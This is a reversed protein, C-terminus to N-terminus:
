SRPASHADILTQLQAGTVADTRGGFLLSAGDPRSWWTTTRVVEVEDALVGDPDLHHQLHRGLRRLARPDLGPADGHVLPDAGVAHDLLFREGAERMSPGTPDAPDLPCTPLGKLHVAIADAHGRTIQGSALARGTEALRVDAVPRSLVSDCAADGDPDLRRAATVDASCEGPDAGLERALFAATSTAAAGTALGRVDVERILGLRAAELQAFARQQLRLLDLLEEDTLTWTGSSTLDAADQAVQQWGAAAGASAAGAPRGARAPDAEDSSGLPERDDDVLVVSSRVV